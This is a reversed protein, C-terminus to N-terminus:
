LTDVETNSEDEVQWEEHRTNAIRAQLSTKGSVRDLLGLEIVWQIFDIRTRFGLEKALMGCSPRTYKSLLDFLVVLRSDSFDWEKLESQIAYTEDIPKLRAVGSSNGSWKVLDHGENKITINIAQEWHVGSQCLARFFVIFDDRRDIKLSDFFRPYEGGLRSRTKQKIGDDIEIEFDDTEIDDNM